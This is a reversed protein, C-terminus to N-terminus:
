DGARSSIREGWAHLEELVPILERGLDTLAYDVRPPVEAHIHRRLVGDAELDRLQSTLVKQSVGGLARQLESFRRVGDLLERLILLKWRGQIVRLALEAKCHGHDHSDQFGTQEEM